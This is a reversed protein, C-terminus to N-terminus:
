LPRRTSEGDDVRNFDNTFEQLNLKKDNDEDVHKLVKVKWTFRNYIDDENLVENMEDMDVFGDNNSDTFRFLEAIDIDETEATTPQLLGVGALFLLAVLAVGSMTLQRSGM